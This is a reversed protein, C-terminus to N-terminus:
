ARTNRKLTHGIKGSGDKRRRGRKLRSPRRVATKGGTGTGAQQTNEQAAKEELYARLTEAFSRLAKGRHSVADKQAATMQAFTKSAPVYLFIPDYGFGGQGMAAFAILGDCRGLATLTDGNPFAAAIACFFAASRDTQGRISNLIM